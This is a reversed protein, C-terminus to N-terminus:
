FEWQVFEEINEIEESIIKDVEQDYQFYQKAKSIEQEKFFELEIYKFTSDIDEECWIQMM